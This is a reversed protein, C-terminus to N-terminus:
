EGFLKSFLGTANLLIFIIAVPAVFRVTIPYVKLFISNRHTSGDLLEEKSTSVGVVFVIFLTSVLGAVPLLVNNALKDLFDLYNYGMVTFNALAGNSLASPISGLLSIAGVIMLSAKKSLKFTDQLAAIPVQLVSMISTLAAVFLLTFFLASFLWGVPMQAFAAPLTVFALGAGQGPNLGLAFVAPFIALGALLAIGTDLTIISATAHLLDAERKMYSAYTIIIGMGLSLSFFSHGLADLVGGM